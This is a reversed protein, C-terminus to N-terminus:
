LFDGFSQQFFLGQVGLAKLSNKDLGSSAAEPLASAGESKPRFWFTNRRVVNPAMDM